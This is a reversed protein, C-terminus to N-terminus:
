LFFYFYSLDLNFKSLEEQDITQNSMIFMTILDVRQSVSYAQAAIIPVFVLPLLKVFNYIFYISPATVLLYIMLFVVMILCLNAVLRFHQASLYWRLTLWRSAELIVAIAIAFILSDTQWGWFLVAAGLLLVPIKM